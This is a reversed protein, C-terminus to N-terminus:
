EMFPSPVGFAAVEIVSEHQLIAREVELASINEGRRRIIDKKRRSFFINGDADVRGLDGTYYWGSVRSM